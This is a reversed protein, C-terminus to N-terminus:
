QVASYGLLHVHPSGPGSTPGSIATESGNRELTELDKADLLKTDIKRVAEVFEM